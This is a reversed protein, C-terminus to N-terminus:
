RITGTTLAKELRRASSVLDHTYPHRDQQVLETIPSQDVLVGARMVLAREVVQSVLAIDHSVFVLAMGRSRTLEALLQVVEAQVTVDLATTPEDAVLVSPQCALAMALAVRQRQGGSVEHPYAQTIRDLNPLAVETLAARVAERLEGGRLGRHRRLPEAVQDGMRMLPDLARGPDQFVMALRAGRLKTLEAESAGVVQRGALLISGSATLGRPLLGCLASATVSKGSGSEGILGVQEGVAVDFSVKDLLKTGGKTTVVLDTVQLVPSEAM